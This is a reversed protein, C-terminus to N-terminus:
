HMKFNTAFLSFIFHPMKRLILRWIWKFIQLILNISWFNKLKSLLLNKNYKKLPDTKQLLLNSQHNLIIRQLTLRNWLKKLNKKKKLLIVKQLLMQVPKWQINSILLFKFLRNLQEELVLCLMFVHLEKRKLFDKVGTVM